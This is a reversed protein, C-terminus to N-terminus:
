AGARRARGRQGLGFRVGLRTTYSRHIGGDYERAGGRDRQHFAFGADQVLSLAAREGLPYGVGFGAAAVVALDGDAPALARGDDTRFGSYRRAGLTVEIVQHLGRGGGAGLLAALSAVSAQGRVQDESVDAIPGTWRLQPRAYTAVLGYSSGGGREREVSARLEPASEFDWASGTTGDDVTGGFQLVGASASVWTSPAGRAPFRVVQAAAPAAVVLLAAALAVPTHRRPM